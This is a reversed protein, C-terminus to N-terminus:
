TLPQALTSFINSVAIFIFSIGMGIILASIGCITNEDEKDYKQNIFTECINIIGLVMAVVSYIVFTTKVGAPNVILNTFAFIGLFVMMMIVTIYNTITVVLAQGVDTSFIILILLLIWLFTMCIMYLDSVNM